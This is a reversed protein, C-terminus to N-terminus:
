EHDNRAHSAPEKAGPPTLLRDRPPFVPRAGVYRPAHPDHCEVCHNRVRPGRSLDWHGSMGGHSGRQYDRFHTGHCQACLEMAETMRLLRGDALRLADHAGEEHCSRCTLSGHEFTLGTHFERLEEPRRPVPGAPRLSHCTVCAVRRPAGGDEGAVEVSTLKWPPHVTVPHTKPGPPPQLRRPVDGNGCGVGSLAVGVLALLLPRSLPAPVGAGVAHRM